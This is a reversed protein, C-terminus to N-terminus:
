CSIGASLETGSELLVKGQQVDNVRADLMFKIGM